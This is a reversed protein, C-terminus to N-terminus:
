HTKSIEGTVSLNRVRATSVRVVCLSNRVSITKVDSITNARAWNTAMIRRLFIHFRIFNYQIFGHSFWACGFDLRHFGNRDYQYSQDVSWHLLRTSNDHSAVENNLVTWLHRYSIWTQYKGMLTYANMGRWEQQYVTLEKHNLHQINPLIFMNNSVASYSM